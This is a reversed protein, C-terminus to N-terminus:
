LTNCKSHLIRTSLLLESDVFILKKLCKNPCLIDAAYRLLMQPDFVFWFDTMGWSIYYYILLSELDIEM